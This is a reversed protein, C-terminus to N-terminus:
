SHYAIAQDLQPDRGAQADEATRGVVIDPILGQGSIQRHNPTLWQAVTVHLSSGDSLPLINQVSGKGYTQDGILVGRHSDQIAGAVIESASATGHNVLVTLPLDRAVGDSRAPYDVEHGGRQSEILVTGSMFQSAVDVAADLLGGGNDRLDLILRQAGHSRLDDIAHVLEDKTTDAFISIAIYGTDPAQSLIRWTVSPTNIEARAITFTLLASRRDVQVTVPTGVDGRLLISADDLSTTNTISHHDVSTLIDGEEVGAEAAPQNPFPSLVIQGNEERRLGAGIGGFKGSLQDSQLQTAPPEVFVTYPDNFASLMGRIAGYIRTQVSPLPGYFQSEVQNWAEDLLQRVAAGEVVGPRPLQIVLPSILLGALFGAEILLGVLLIGAMRRFSIRMAMSECWTQIIRVCMILGSLTGRTEDPEVPETLRDPGM